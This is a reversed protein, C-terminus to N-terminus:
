VNMWSLHHHILGICGVLGMVGGCRIDFNPWLDGFFLFQYTYFTSKLDEGM